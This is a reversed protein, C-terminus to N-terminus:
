VGALVNRVPAFSKRHEPTPGLRRLAVLHAATGYGKHRAFGYGSYLTDLEQMIRDRMVKAVISAAAISYSIVDGKVVAKQAYLMDPIIRNGDVLLLMRQRENNGSNMTWEKEMQNRIEPKRNRQTGMARQQNNVVQLVAERMALFTAQLINVRDITAADVIGTGIEFYQLVISYAQERDKESLRKSDRIYGFAERADKPLSFDPLHYWAAAAVVPGALPGRGAEDVGFIVPFSGKHHREIDFSAQTM